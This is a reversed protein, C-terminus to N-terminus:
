HLGSYQAGCRGGLFYGSLLIRIADVPADLRKALRLHFHLENTHLLSRVTVPSLFTATVNVPGTTFAFSTRTATFSVATQTALTVNPPGSAPGSGM